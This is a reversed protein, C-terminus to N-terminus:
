RLWWAVVYGECRRTGARHFKAPLLYAWNDSARNSQNANCQLTYCVLKLRAEVVVSMSGSRLPEVYGRFDLTKRHMPRVILTPLM